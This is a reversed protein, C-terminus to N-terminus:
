KYNTKSTKNINVEEQQKGKRKSHEYIKKNYGFLLSLTTVKKKNPNTLSALHALKM